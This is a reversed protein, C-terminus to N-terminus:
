ASSMRPFGQAPDKRRPVFQLQKKYSKYTFDKESGFEKELADQEALYATLGGGIHYTLKKTEPPERRESHSTETTEKLNASEFHRSVDM